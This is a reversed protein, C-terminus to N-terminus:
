ALKLSVTIEGKYFTNFYHTYCFPTLFHKFNKMEAEPHINLLGVKGKQM